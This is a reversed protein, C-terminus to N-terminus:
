SPREAVHTFALSSQYMLPQVPPKSQGLSLFTLILHPQVLEQEIGPIAAMINEEDHTCKRKVPPTSQEEVSHRSETSAGRGHADSTTSSLQGAHPILIFSHSVMVVFHGKLLQICILLGYYKRQDICCVLWVAM